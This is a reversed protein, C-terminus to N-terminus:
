QFAELNFFIKKKRKKQVSPPFLSEILIPIATINEALNKSFKNKQIEELTHGRARLLVFYLSLHGCITTQRPQYQINNAELNVKRTKSNQKLIKILKKYRLSEFQGFSDFFVISNSTITDITFVHGGITNNASPRTKSTASHVIYIKNKQLKLPIQDRFVVVPNYKKTYKDNQLVYLILNTEM